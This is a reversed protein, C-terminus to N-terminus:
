LALMEDSFRKVYVNVAVPAVLDRKPPKFLEPLEPLVEPKTPAPAERTKLIVPM